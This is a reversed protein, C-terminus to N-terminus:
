GPSHAVTVSARFVKVCTLFTSKNCFIRGTTFTCLCTVLKYNSSHMRENPLATQTQLLTLSCWLPIWKYCQSKETAMPCLSWDMPFLFTTTVIKRMNHSSLKCCITTNRVIGNHHLKVSNLWNQIQNRFLIALYRAFEKCYTTIVGVEGL